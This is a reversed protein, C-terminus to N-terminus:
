VKESREKVRVRDAVIGANEIFGRLGVLLVAAVFFFGPVVSDACMRAPTQAVEFWELM